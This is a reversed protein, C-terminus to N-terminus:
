KGTIFWRGLVKEFGDKGEKFNRIYSVVEEQKEIFLHCTKEQEDEFVFTLDTVATEKLSEVYTKQFFLMPVMLQIIRERYLLFM